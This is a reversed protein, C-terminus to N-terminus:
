YTKVVERVVESVRDIQADTLNHGSALNISNHGVRYAVPNEGRRKFMPMSSLPYFVPRSDVGLGRMKDIIALRQEQDIGKVEISTMWHISRCGPLEASVAVRGFDDLNRHYRANIQRKREVLEEIRELQALGLAAQLNSMKYKYGIENNWLAKHEDRGHDGVIGARKMYAENNSALMGGEGTVLVKAGQFSFAAMDGFSGTRKGGIMAGVSPAADELILLKHRKALEVLAPMPAPHGYLHVPMIAKTRPTILKEVCAPSMGWSVEEVDCLVPEAGTYKVVSATAVWTLEPVIVEDGPGIGMTLLAIHMAGTCSSTAMAHRVGIYEAFAHEFRRLYGSWNENWGNKIADMVYAVERETISPGATLIMKNQM